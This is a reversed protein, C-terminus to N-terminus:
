TRVKKNAEVREFIRQIKVCLKSVPICLVGWLVSYLLCVQGFFNLPVSSYDWVKWGLGLNVICGVAFEIATIISSGLVCKEPISLHPKKEYLKYLSLFCAGGTLVMSWHTRQRWLLEVVGYALGGACFLMFDRRINETM